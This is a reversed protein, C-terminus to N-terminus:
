YLKDAHKMQCHARTGYLMESSEWRKNDLADLHDSISELFWDVWPTKATHRLHAYSAIVNNVCVGDRQGDVGFGREIQYLYSQTEDFHIKSHHFEHGYLTDPYDTDSLYQNVKLRVYGRGQPKNHMSVVGNIAGVMPWAVNDIDISQCLYMLGGCEARVPLGGNIANALAKTCAHNSALAAAHREPFGGGLLLGDLNQPLPDRIPSFEILQVGRSRLTELDDEYYFHFAEDRAVGITVPRTIAPTDHQAAPQAVTTMNKIFLSDIDCTAQLVNAVNDIHNNAEPHDPAPVLGLERENISLSPCEHITGLVKLDCYENIANEIKGAHRDSKLRNLIVGSFRVNPDFQTLGNLLSATSRHMGRCDVVLLVPLGLQRAIAANSDSGDTALGDHLGMTGETLVVDNIHRKFLRSIENPSQLYPDLNYCSNLSAAKLWLPDIYDPGKKYTQVGLSDRAAIRALGMSVMSKGSSRWPAAIYHGVVGHVFNTM